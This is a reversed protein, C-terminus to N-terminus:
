ALEVLGEPRDVDAMGEGLSDDGFRENFLIGCVEGRKVDEIETWFDLKAPGAVIVIDYRPYWFQTGTKNRLLPLKKLETRTWSITISVFHQVSPTNHSPAEDDESRVIQISIV